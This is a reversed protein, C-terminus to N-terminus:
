QGGELVKFSERLKMAEREARENEYAPDENYIGCKMWQTSKDRKGPGSDYFCCNECVYCFVDINEPKSPYRDADANNM